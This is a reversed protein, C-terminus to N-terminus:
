HIERADQASVEDGGHALKNRLKTFRNLVDAFAPSMLGLAVCLDVKRQFSPGRLFSPLDGVFAYSLLEDLRESILAHARMTLRFTDPEGEGIAAFREDLSESAM